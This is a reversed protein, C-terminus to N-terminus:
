LKLRDFQRGMRNLRFLRHQTADQQIGTRPVFNGIQQTLGIKIARFMAKDEAINPSQRFM